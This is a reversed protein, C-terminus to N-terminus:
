CPCCPFGACVQRPDAGHELLVEAVLAAGEDAAVVLPTVKELPADIASNLCLGEEQADVEVGAELCKRVAETVFAREASSFPDFGGSALLHLLSVSVRKAVEEGRFFFMASKAAFDISAAHLLTQLM